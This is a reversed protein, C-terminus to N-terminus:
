QTDAVAPVRFDWLIAKLWQDSVSGVRSKSEPNVGTDAM